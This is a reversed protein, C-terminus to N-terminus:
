RKPAQFSFLIVDGDKVKYEKKELRLLGKAKAESFSPCNKFNDFDVVQAKIFGREMDSHIKGAAVQATDGLSLSWARIEKEGVTFFTILQLRTLLERKFYYLGEPSLNFEKFFAEREEHALRTMELELQANIKLLPEKGFTEECERSYNEDINLVPIIPKLTFLEFGQLFKWEERSFSIDKLFGRQLLQTKCKGLLGIEFIGHKAGKKIKEERREISELDHTIFHTLLTKWAQSPEIEDEGQKKFAKIVYIFAESKSATLVEEELFESLEIKIPVKKKDPFLKGLEDLRKDPINVITINRNAPQSIKEGLLRLLTTKGVKPKGLLALKIM